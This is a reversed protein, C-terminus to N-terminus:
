LFGATQAGGGTVLLRGIPTRGPQSSFFRVSNQVEAVLESVAQACASQARPDMGAASAVRRKLAEADPEPLDLASAISRTISEGGLDITRVFQLTGGEHVVVLTLGAGVSVIAEPGGEWTGDLSAVARVLAATNLDIAVPELGAEEVAGVISSVLDLHAAAVLVRLTAAGEADTYQAIVKASVATREIPFPVVDDARFRVADNLEDPPITPMDLERTIARLGAVGIHVRKERFGGEQWLRRLARAVGNPDRVEGDIIAGHPLGVQGFAQLVPKVGDAVTLEVARVASTGIDLGVIRQAMRRGRKGGNRTM